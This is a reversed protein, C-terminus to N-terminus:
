YSREQRYQSLVEREIEDQIDCFHRTIQETIDKNNSYIRMAKIQDRTAPYTCLSGMRDYADFAEDITQCTATVSLIAPLEPDRTEFELQLESEEIIDSYKTHKM